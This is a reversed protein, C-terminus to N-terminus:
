GGIAPKQSDELIPDCSELAAQVKPDNPDPKSDRGFINRVGTNPDPDPFDPVGNERMCRTFELLAEADGPGANSEGWGAPALPRCAEAAERFVPEDPDISGPPSIRIRGEADADPFNSVGHERMCQSYTLAADVPDEATPTPEAQASNAEGPSATQSDSATPIGADTAQTCAALAGILLAAFLWLLMVRVSPRRVRKTVTRIGRMM